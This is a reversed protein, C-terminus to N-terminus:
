HRVKGHAIHHQLYETNVKYSRSVCLVLLHCWHPIQYGTTIVTLLIYFTVTLPVASPYCTSSPPYQHSLYSHCTTSVTFSNTPRLKLFVATTKGKYICFGTKNRRTQFTIVHSALWSLQIMFHRPSRHSSHIINQTPGFTCSVFSQISV